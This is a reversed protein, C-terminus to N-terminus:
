GRRGDRRVQSPSKQARTSQLGYLARDPTSPPHGNPNSLGPRWPGTQPRGSGRISPTPHDFRRLGCGAFRGTGKIERSLRLEERGRLRPTYHKGRELLWLMGFYTSKWTISGRCESTWSRSRFQARQTFTRGSNPHFIAGKQLSILFSRTPSSSIMRSVQSMNSASITSFTM